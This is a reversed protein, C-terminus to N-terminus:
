KKTPWSSGKEQKGQLLFSIQKVEEEKARTMKSQTLPELEKFEQISKVFDTNAIIDEATLEGRKKRKPKQMILYEQEKPEEVATEFEERKRKRDRQSTQM